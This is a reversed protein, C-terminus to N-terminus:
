DARVSYTGGDFNGPTGAGASTIRIHTVRDITGDLGIGQQLVVSFDDTLGEFRSALGGGALGEIRARIDWERAAAVDVLFDVISGTSEPNVPSGTSYNTAGAGHGALWTSGGDVSAEIVPHRNATNFSLSDAVVYVSKAWV